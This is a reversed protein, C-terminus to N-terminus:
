GLKRYYGTAFVHPIDTTPWLARCLLRAGKPATQDKTSGWWPNLAGKQESLADFSALSSSVAAPAIHFGLSRCMTYLHYIPARQGAWSLLSYAPM